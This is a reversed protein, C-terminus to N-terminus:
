HALSFSLPPPRLSFTSIRLYNIEDQSSTGSSAYRIHAPFRARVRANERALQSAPYRFATSRADRTERERRGGRQNEIEERGKKGRRQEKKAVGKISEDGSISECISACRSYDKVKEGRSKARHIAANTTTSTRTSGGGGEREVTSNEFLVSIENRSIKAGASLKIISASSFRLIVRATRYHFGNSNRIEKEAIAYCIKRM